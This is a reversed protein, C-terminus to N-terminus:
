NNSDTTVLKGTVCGVDIDVIVTDKDKKDSFLALIKKERESDIQMWNLHLFNNKLFEKEMTIALIKSKVSALWVFEKYITAIDM